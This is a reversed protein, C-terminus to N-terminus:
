SSGFTQQSNAQAHSFGTLMALYAVLFLMIPRTPQVQAVGRRLLWRSVVEVKEESDRGGHGRERKMIRRM